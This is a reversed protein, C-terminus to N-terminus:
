FTTTLSTYLWSYPQSAGTDRMFQGPAFRAAGGDLRVHRGIRWQATADFEAGIADSAGAAAARVVTGAPDYMADSTSARQFAHAALRVRVAARPSVQLVVREELLNRRGLVDALGAFAHALPYLQDWTGSQAPAGAGTGSARDVGISLAPAWGGARSWTLDSAIMSAHTVTSGTLVQQAGSEIELLVGTIGVPTIVRATVTARRARTTTSSADAEKVLLAGEMVRPGKPQQWAVTSGWFVTRTDPVDARSRIVTVPHMAFAGVSMAGRRSEVTAGQFIRRVNAWDLPSVIRERGLSLEQRGLRLATHRGIVSGAVEAFANGWDLDNRDILRTGGPLDRGRAVSHRGEVFLRAHTGVRLDAHLHARLLGFHDDRTGSGGGLFNRVAEGRVRAHGGLSLWVSGGDNLTVRKLPDFADGHHATSWDERFRLNDYAPRPSAVSTQQAHAPTAVLIFALVSYFTPLRFNSTM